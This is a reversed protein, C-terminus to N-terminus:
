ARKRYAQVSLMCSVSLVAFSLLICGAIVTNPNMMLHEIIRFVAPLFTPSVVLAMVALFPLFSWGKAKSYGMKFFLPSQMGIIVSFVLLSVSFGLLADSFDILRNLILSIVSHIVLVAAFTLFFNLLMYLYRGAVIERLRMSVSGYLQDLNNKEQLVFISSLFLATFWAANLCLVTVSSGMFEFMIVIVVLSLYMVLQSKMTLFDLRIMKLTDSM